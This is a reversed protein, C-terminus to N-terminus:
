QNEVKEKGDFNPNLSKVESGTEINWFKIENDTSSTAITSDNIWSVDIIGKTHAKEIKRVVELSETDYVVITKDSSVSVFVKGDQRFAVKNVFNTHARLTKAHKFPVGDFVYVEQNEGSLILRLNKADIKKIDISTVNKTPGFL